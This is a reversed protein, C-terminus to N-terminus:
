RVTLWADDGGALSVSVSRGAGAPLGDARRDCSFATMVRFVKVWRAAAVAPTTAAVARPPASAKAGDAAAAEAGASTVGIDQGPLSGAGCGPKRQRDQYGSATAHASPTAAWTAAVGAT